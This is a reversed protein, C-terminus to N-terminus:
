CIKGSPMVGFNWFKTALSFGSCNTKTLCIRMRGTRLWRTQIGMQPLMAVALPEDSASNPKLPPLSRDALAAEDLLHSFRSQLSIRASQHNTESISGANTALACPVKKREFRRVDPVKANRVNQQSLRKKASSYGIEYSQGGTICDTHM